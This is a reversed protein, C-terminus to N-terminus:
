LKRQKIMGMSMLIKLSKMMRYITFIDQSAKLEVQQTFANVQMQLKALNEESKALKRELLRTRNVANEQQRKEHDMRALLAANEKKLSQMQKLANNNKFQLSFAAAKAKRAVSELATIAQATQTQNLKHM